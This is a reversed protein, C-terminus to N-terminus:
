PRTSGTVRSAHGEPWEAAPKVHDSGVYILASLDVRLLIFLCETEREHVETLM